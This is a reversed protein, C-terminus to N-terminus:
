LLMSADSHVLRKGSIICSYDSVMTTQDGREGKELELSHDSLIILTSSM